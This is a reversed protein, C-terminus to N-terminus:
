VFRSVGDDATFFITSGALTVRGPASTGSGPNIDKLMVTGAPTGDSVWLEGGNVGDNGSFYLTGNVNFLSGAPVVSDHLKVTGAATGDSKWLEVGNVDDYAQFYLTSGIVCLNNPNASNAGPYIDKVLM